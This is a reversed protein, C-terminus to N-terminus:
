HNLASAFLGIEPQFFINPLLLFVDTNLAWETNETFCWSHFEAVVNTDGPIYAASLRINHSITWTWIDQTVNNCTRSHTDMKNIYSVATFNDLKLHIHSCQCNAALYTLALKAAYLELVNIHPLNDMNEWPAGVTTPSNTADWGDLSADSYITTDPPPACIFHHSTSVNTHWWQIEVTVLHSLTVAM